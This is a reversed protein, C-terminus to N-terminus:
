FHLTTKVRFNRGDQIIVDEVHTDATPAGYRADFLNYISASVDFRGFLAPSGLTMNAVTYAPAVNGAQTRRGSVYQADFGATLHSAMPARIQAKAMRRPSNTLEERTDLDWTRQLSYTLEGTPGWGPNFQLGLEVGDSEIRGSNGFVLNGTITDRGQSILDTLRNRFTAASVQVGSGLFQQAILELTTIHEPQLKPNPQYEFGSYYLEYANPARFARGALAKITTGSTPAYILGVRPTTSAGFTQYHDVRLGAYAMLPSSLTIEDQAYVGWRTSRDHLDTHVAFPVPDWTSQDMRFNDRFEAGATVFHRGINQTYDVDSGWWNGIAGDHEPPTTSDYAYRGVYTWRATYARTTLSGGSTFTHAYTASGLTLGDITHSRPDNFRTEFSGTPIGKDRWSSMGEVAFGGKSVRGFLKEFNEYDGGSAIGNNTEPTDFEHFYLRQGKSTSHTASALVDIDDGISRGYSAREGYTGYSAASASLEGGNLDRGKKTVVNIVAFFANSGYIAASPGRIIEIRDVISMDIGFDEGIYAEDYVNDNTRLGNLLLLVRSSYDGPRDFGRVGVYSYNRDNTVYFSPIAKLVDSLTQYGHDKIEAATVVTVFSPVDRSSQARKSAAVVVELRMLQELDMTALDPSTKRPPPDALQAGARAVCVLALLAVACNQFRVFRSRM